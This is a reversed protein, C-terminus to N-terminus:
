REMSEPKGSTVDQVAAARGHIQCTGDPNHGHGAHGAAAQRMSMAHTMSPNAGLSMATQKMSALANMLRTSKEDGDNRRAILDKMLTGNSRLDEALAMQVSMLSYLEDEEVKVLERMREVPDRLQLTDVISASTFNFVLERRKDSDLDSVAAVARQQANTMCNVFKEMVVKGDESEVFEMFAAQQAVVEPDSYKNQMQHQQQAMKMRQDAVYMHPVNHMFIPCDRYFGDEQEPTFCAEQCAFQARLMFYHMKTEIETDNPFTQNLKNLCDVAYDAAFGLKVLLGRQLEIIKENPPKGTAKFLTRLMSKNDKMAMLANCAEAFELVDKKSMGGSTKPVRLYKDYRIDVATLFAKMACYMFERAAENLERDSDQVLPIKSMEECGFDRDIQFNYELVDRQFEMAAGHLMMEGSRCDEVIAEINGRDLIFEQIKCLFGHMVDRPLGTDRTYLIPLAGPENLKLHDPTPEKGVNKKRM